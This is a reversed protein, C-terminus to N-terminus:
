IGALAKECAALVAAQAAASQNATSCNWDAPIKSSVLGVLANAVLPCVLSAGVGKATVSGAAPAPCLNLKDLEAKTWTGIRWESGGDPKESGWDALVDVQYATKLQALKAEAFQSESREM